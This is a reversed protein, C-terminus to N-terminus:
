ATRREAQAYLILARPQQPRRELLTPPYTFLFTALAALRGFRMEARNVLELARRSWPGVAADNLTPTLGAAEFMTELQDITYGLRVHGGDETESLVEGAYPTRHLYPSSVHLRGGPELLNALAAIVAEDHELHELIEFAVIQDFRESSDLDYVNAVEFRCRRRDVGLFEAYENCRRVNEPNLDIGLVSNGLGYAALAFAGNGCGVDLTRVNGSTFHGIFRQRQRTAVDIGPFLLRKAALFGWNRTM